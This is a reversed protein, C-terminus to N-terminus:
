KSGTNKKECKKCFFQFEELQEENMECVEDSICEKHFWLTCKDNSCGIWAAGDDEWGENGLCAHCVDADDLKMSDDSSDDFVIQDEEEEKEIARNNKKKKNHTEVKKEERLRKREDKEEQARQKDEQQKKLFNNLVKGSVAPPIKPKTKVVKRTIIVSDAIKLHDKFPSFEWNEFSRSNTLASSSPQASENLSSNEAEFPIMRSTSPIPGIMDSVDPHDEFVQQSSPSRAPTSSRMPTRLGTDVNEEVQVNKSEETTDNENSAESYLLRHAKEYFKWLCGLSTNDVIDYGGNIRREFMEKTERTLCDEFMHMMRMMGIKESQNSTYASTLQKPERQLLRDYAVADPQFPVLGTKRFGSRINQPTEVARKWARDFVPFFHTRSMSLGKYKKSFEDLSANWFKKLPGYVSVDLPQLIHSAHPPFCYLIINKERCFDSVAINIHSTHGDMFVLIPFPVKEVVSPYFHNVLWCFFNDATMWGNPSSGVVFDEENVGDFNFRPNKGPFLVYPKSLSGDASACGLVTVQERSDPAVKYVNKAGKTTILKLKGNTGALPLGSEDLNFIQSANEVKLFEKANIQHEELLYKELGAFWNRIQTESIHTRQYGLTEPMRRTLQPWRKMFRYVWFLSPKNDEFKAVPPDGGVAIVADRHKDLCSKVVSPIDKKAVGYGISASDQIWKCLREEQEPNLSSHPGLTDNVFFRLCTNIHIYILICHFM